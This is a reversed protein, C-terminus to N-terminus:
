AWSTTRGTIGHGREVIVFEEEPGHPGAQGAVFHALRHLAPQLFAGDGPLGEIFGGLLLLFAQLRYLFVKLVLIQSPVAVIYFTNAAHVGLASPSGPFRPNGELRLM